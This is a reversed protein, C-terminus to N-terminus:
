KEGLQKSLDEATHVPSQCTYRECVYATSKGGLRGKGRLLPIKTEEVRDSAHVLVKNPIYRDRIARFLGATESAAPDGIVVIERVRDHQFDAACLLREYAGPSRHVEDAFTRFISEAKERYDKRDLLVSLRLLNMAHVSNGSPIAGDHPQKSRAILREADSATFFFGGGSPDFHYEISKDTLAVAEDLWRPDFDAEFLNLLGEIFFAYDTLYGTLRSTGKRHTALLRENKRSEALIFRAAKAAASTLNPQDLVRGGKALSAIMLGNWGTLIKDDLGPPTRQARRERLKQRWVGLKNKLERADVSHMRAFTELPKTVHPINKPGAPAHGMREFWNGTETIDYYACFLKADADGLVERVEDVTWIYFKGELGDSDADRSSYFGGGPSQLDALVYNFIDAAVEAYLPNKTAQYADLYISSVLAQDYLMKEFHPVLWELDTSYRCIGGGIHDYIGGRAMHDLTVQVADILDSNGTRRYSRLMLDMAM